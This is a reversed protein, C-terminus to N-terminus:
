SVDERLLTKRGAFDAKRKAREIIGKVQKELTKDLESIAGKSPRKGFKRILEEVKKKQIM